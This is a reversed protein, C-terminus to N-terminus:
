VNDECERDENLKKDLHLNQEIFLTMERVIHKNDTGLWPTAVRRNHDSKIRGYAEINVTTWHQWDEARGKSETWDKCFGTAAVQRMRLFM